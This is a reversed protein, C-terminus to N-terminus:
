LESGSTRHTTLRRTCTRAGSGHCRSCCGTSTPSSGCRSATPTRGHAATARTTSSRCRLCGCAMPPAPSALAPVPPQAPAVPRCARRSPRGAPRRAPRRPGFHSHHGRIAEMQRHVSIFSFATRPSRVCAQGCNSHKPNEFSTTEFDYQLGRPVM